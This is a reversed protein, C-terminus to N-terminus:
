ERRIRFKISRLRWQQPRDCRQLVSRDNGRHLDHWDNSRAVWDDPSAVWNNASAVIHGCWVGPKRWAAHRSASRGALGGSAICCDVRTAEHRPLTPGDSFNPPSRLIGDLMPLAAGLEAEARDASGPRQYEILMSLRATSRMAAAMASSGSSRWPRGTATLRATV